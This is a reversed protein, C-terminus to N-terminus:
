PKDGQRERNAKAIMEQIRRSEDPTLSGSDLLTMVLGEASGEFVTNVLHRLQEARAEQRPRAAMYRFANGVRRAELWGKEALRTILTLVTNRAVPRRTSLVRWVDAVGMEGTDWFLNMIERQADSLPPTKPKKKMM